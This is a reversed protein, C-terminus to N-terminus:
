EDEDPRTTPPEVSKLGMSELSKDYTEDSIAGAARYKDLLEIRRSVMAPDRRSFMPISVYCMTQQGGNAIAGVLALIVLGAVVPKRRQYRMKWWILVLALVILGAGGCRIMVDTLWLEHSYLDSIRYEQPLRFMVVKMRSAFNDLVGLGEDASPYRGQVDKFKRLHVKLSSLQQGILKLHRERRSGMAGYDGFGAVLFGVVAGAVVIVTIWAAKQM